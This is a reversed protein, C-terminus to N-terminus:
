RAPGALYRVARITAGRRLIRVDLGRLVDKRFMPPDAIRLIYYSVAEHMIREAARDM